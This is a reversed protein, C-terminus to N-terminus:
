RALTFTAPEIGTMREVTENPSRTSGHDRSADRSWFFPITPPYSPGLHVVGGGIRAGMERRAGHHLQCCAQSQSLYNLNSDKHPLTGAEAPTCSASYPLETTGAPSM